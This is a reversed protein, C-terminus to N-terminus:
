AVADNANQDHILRGALREVFHTGVEPPQIRTEEVGELALESIQSLRIRLRANEMLLLHKSKTAEYHELARAVTLKLDDNNWPKSLYRYVLGCNISEILADVDTYGTLLIKVMQPRLAVTKKMLEIGTMGPMRQDSIMLAVNHQQLLRLADDASEATVVDYNPRLLRRLTRLNVPEDDVILIKYTM